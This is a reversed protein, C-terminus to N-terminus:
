QPLTGNAAQIMAPNMGAGAQNALAAQNMAAGAQNALAAQNMAAGAQNALAAQNMATGAQNVAAGAGNLNDGAAASQGANTYEQNGGYLVSDAASANLEAGADSGAAGTSNAYRQAGDGEGSYGANPMPQGPQGNQANQGNQGNQGAQAQGQGNQGTRGFYQTELSQDAPQYRHLFTKATHNRMEPVQYIGAENMFLFVEYAQNACNVSCNILLQRLNPDASELAAWMSNRAANKHALLMATAIEGDSDVAGWQPIYLPPNNLGYKIQQPDIGRINTNPPIPSFGRYDHTYAVVENYSRIEEQQHRVIMDLLRPNRTQTAYMNFHLIMNFKELLCEHVEMTEHAGYPM